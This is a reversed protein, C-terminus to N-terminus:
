LRATTKVVADPEGTLISEDIKLENVTEMRLDAPIIDGPALYVLDGPILDEADISLRGNESEVTAKSSLLKSISSLSDDAKREQYYGIMANLVVVLLVIAGEILSGTMFKLVAAGILVYMLADHFYSLFKKWEPTKESAQLKNKGHKEQYAKRVENTVLTESTASQVKDIDLNHWQKM